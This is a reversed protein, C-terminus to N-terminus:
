PGPETCSPLASTNREWDRGYFTLYEDVHASWYENNHEGTPHVIYTHPIDRGTLRSSFLQQSPGSSDRAGNDLYMRLDAEEIFSANLALELPNHSAPIENSDNPFYASHGGVAGFIDPHRMAISYAWFGGRSIGGIARHARNSITCLDRDIQPLLEDLIVGEYSPEPPFNNRAGINGMYPMVVIMPPLVGLRIGQDLAEPLGLDLWQDESYSLGHLLILVPYRKQLQFYCPPVYITYRLNERALESRNDNIDILRGGDAECPLATPTLTPQVTETPSLTPTLTPTLTPSPIPTESPETTIVVAVPTPNYPALPECAASLLALLVLGTLSFVRLSLNVPLLLVSKM